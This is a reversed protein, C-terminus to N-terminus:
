NHVNIISLFSKVYDNVCDTVDDKNYNGYADKYNDICIPTFYKVLSDIDLSVTVSGTVNGEHHITAGCGTLLLVSFFINRM